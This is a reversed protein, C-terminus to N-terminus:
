EELFIIGSELMAAEVDDPMVAKASIERVTVRTCPQTDPELWEYCCYEIIVQKDNKYAIGQLADKVIKKVNDCDPRVGPPKWVDPKTKRKKAVTMPMAVVVELSVFPMLEIGAESAFQVVRAHYNRSKQPKVGMRFTSGDKRRGTFVQTEQKGVPPGPITFTYSKM